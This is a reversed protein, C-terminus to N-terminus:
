DTQHTLFSQTQHNKIITMDKKFVENFLTRFNVIRNLNAHYLKIITTDKDHIHNISFLVVWIIKRGLYDGFLQIFMTMGLICVKVEIRM